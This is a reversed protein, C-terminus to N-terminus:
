IKKFSGAKGAKAKYETNVGATYTKGNFQMNVLLTLNGKAVSLAPDMGMAGWATGWSGGKMAAKFPVDGGAYEMKKTAKNRKGKLTLAFSGQGSKGKGKADLTFRVEAGGVILAVSMGAPNLLSPVNSISGSVSCSDKGTMNFKASGSLKTITMPIKLLTSANYADTGSAVEDANSFGDGDADTDLDDPIGDQDFDATGGPRSNSDNPNTGAALEQSDSIGDGDADGAQSNPNVKLSLSANATKGNSDTVSVGVLFIGASYYIHYSTSGGLSTVGDGFDWRYTLPPPSSVGITFQVTQGVLAPNVNVTMTSDIVPGNTISLTGTASGRYNASNVTAVVAYSGLNSPATASGDYTIDVNLGAPSTTVSVTRPTGTHSQLLNGLVVTASGKLVNISVTKAAPSNNTTTDSPTFQVSLTQANGANLVTGSVPTYAFTGPVNATANLQSAGLVAPYTIDAPNSWSVTPTFKNILTYTHSTITGLTAGGPSSLTIIVTEDPENVLDNVVTLAINKTTDGSAFSLTGNALTFDVGGGVATGGTVAYNVTTTQTAAASLSVPINVSSIGESGNSSAANFSVAPGATIVYTAAAVTSDTMGPKIAIANITTNATVSIPVGYTFLTSAATPTTGNTTYYIDSWSIDCFLNVAQTGVYTGGAPSFTPPAVQASGGDDDRSFYSADTDSRFPSASLGEVNMLNNAPNLEFAYRVAVPAAVSPSTVVVQTGQIVANARQWGGSAGRLLFGELAGGGRSALGTGTQTFSVTAQAGAFAASQFIPGSHVITDGYALKRAALAARQGAPKKNPFHVDMNQGIAGVNLDLTVILATNAVTQSTKLQAERIFPDRGGGPQAARAGVGCLQFILFPFNGQAWKQRWDAILVPMLRAYTEPYDRNGEGQFWLAGRIGYQKVPLFLSNWNDGTLGNGPTLGGAVLAADHKGIATALQPNAEITAKAVFSQAVAGVVSNELIGVPVGLRQQLDVACHYAVASFAGATGPSCVQWQGPVDCYRIQPHNAAAVEAAGNTTRSLEFNMNSQGSALWVEGALVDSITITDTAGMIKLQLVTAGATLPDLKLLWKGDAGATTTKTQGAIQVTIAEGALATGFIPAAMGAQLVMHDSFVSSLSVTPGGDNDVITYTHSTTAGLTANSPASLGIIVTELAEASTDNVVSLAINKTSEGAAFSLTGNALTFDVGGGSASGGTVSYAVTTAQTAAASLSVPINVSTTAEGGSSSAATFSVSPVAGASVSTIADRVIESVRIHAAANYHAYDGAITYYNASLWPQGLAKFTGYMDAKFINMNTCLNSLATNTSDMLNFQGAQCHLGSQIHMLESNGRRLILGFLAEYNKAIQSVGFAGGDCDPFDNYCFDAAVVLDIPEQNFVYAGLSCAGEWSNSAPVAANVVTIGTYDYHTRLLGQLKLPWHDQSPNSSQLGWTISAGLVMIKVPQKATMKNVTNQISNGQPLPTSPVTVGDVFRIDDIEYAQAPMGSLPHGYTQSYGYTFEVRFVEKYHTDMTGDFNQQFFDRWPITVETWTTTVPFLAWARTWNAGYRFQVNGWKTSADGRVWFKLGGYTATGGAPYFPDDNTNSLRLSGSSPGGGPNPASTAAFGIRLANGSAGPVVSVAAPSGIVWGTTNECSNLTQQAAHIVTVCTLCIISLALIGSKKRQMIKLEM